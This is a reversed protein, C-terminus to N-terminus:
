GDFSRTEVLYGNMMLPIMKMMRQRLHRHHSKGEILHNQDELKPVQHQHLQGVNTVFSLCAVLEAVVDM